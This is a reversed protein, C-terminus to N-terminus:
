PRIETILHCIQEIFADGTVPKTIQGNCGAKLCSEKEQQLAHATVAIIPKKYGQARIRRTAEKGDVGPIQIDMLIFDYDTDKAKQVAVLGDEVIDSTAGASRLFHAFIEQNDVSDEVLLAKLGKLNYLIPSSPLQQRVEPPLEFLREKWDAQFLDGCNITIEFVSGHGKLSEKLVIDGGLQQSLRRSLALGLGTGGYRRTNSNDGQQFPSFLQQQNESTIGIGTDEITFYLFNDKADNQGYSILLKVHGNDTFKIANGILNMLIQKLRIEDTEIHAPLQGVGEVHFSINKEKARLEMVSKIENIISSLRFRKKDIVLKGAEVKSLDLIDDIIRTLQQGNKKVGEVLNTKQKEDTTTCLIESFGIIANLPTRIEHSMNALFATKAKNADEVKRFLKANEIGTGVQSVLNDIMEFDNTTYREGEHRALFLLGCSGDTRSPIALLVWDAFRDTTNFLQAFLKPGSRDSKSVLNGATSLTKLYSLSVTTKRLETTNFSKSSHIALETENGPLEGFFLIAHTSKTIEVTTEFFQHVLVGLDLEVAINRTMQNLKKLLETQERSKKESQLIFEKAKKENMLKTVMSSVFYFLLSGVILILLFVASVLYKDAVTYFHPLPVVKIKWQRGYFDIVRNKADFSESDNNTDFRRYILPDNTNAAADEITFNVKEKNFSSPGFMGDFFDQNRFSAWFVGSVEENRSAVSDEVASTYYPLYLIFAALRESVAENLLFLPKTIIPQGSDIAAHIATSRKDESFLDFGVNNRNNKMNGPEFMVIPAVIAKKNTNAPYVKYFPYTKKYLGVHRSLDKQSVVPAYGIGRIGPYRKVLDVNDILMRYKELSPVGNSDFYARTFVLGNVHASLTGVLTTEIRRLEADLRANIDTKVAASVVVLLLCSLALSLLAILAIIKKDNIYTSLTNVIKNKMSINKSINKSKRIKNLTCFKVCKMPVIFKITKIPIQRPM